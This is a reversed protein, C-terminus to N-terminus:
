PKVKGGSIVNSCLEPSWDETGRHVSRHAGCNKCWGPIEGGMSEFISPEKGGEPALAQKAIELASKLKNEWDHKCYDCYWPEMYHTCQAPFGTIAEICMQLAKEVRALRTQMEAFREHEAKWQDALAHDLKHLHEASERAANAAALEASLRHIEQEFSKANCESVNDQDSM